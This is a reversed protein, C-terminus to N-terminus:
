GVSSTDTRPAEARLATVRAGEGSLAAYPPSTMLLTQDAVGGATASGSLYRTGSCGVGSCTPISTTRLTTGSADFVRVRIHNKARVTAYARQHHDSVLGYAPDGAPPAVTWASRGTHADFARIRDGQLL